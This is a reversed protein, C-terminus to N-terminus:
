SSKLEVPFLSKVRDYIMHTWYVGGCIKTKLIRKLIISGDVGLDLLHSKKWLTKQCIRHLKIEKM